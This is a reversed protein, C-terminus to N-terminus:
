TIPLNVSQTIVPLAIRESTRAIPSLLSVPRYSTADDPPKGPKLLPVVIARKWINPVRGTSFMQTAMLALYKRALPGTKKLHLTSLGDPGLAKSNNASKIAEDVMEENVFFDENPM